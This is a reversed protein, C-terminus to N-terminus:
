DESVHWLRTPVINSAKRVVRNVIREGWFVISIDTSLRRQSFHGSHWHWTWLKNFDKVLALSHRLLKAGKYSQIPIWCRLTSKRSNERNGSLNLHDCVVLIFLWMRKLVPCLKRYNHDLAVSQWQDCQYSIFCSNYLKEWQNSICCQRNVLQDKDHLRFSM